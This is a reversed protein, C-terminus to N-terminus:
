EDTEEEDSAKNAAQIFERVKITDKIGATEVGSSVDVGYPHCIRIAKRVNEPSLGGALFYPRKIDKLLTWDFVEGMGGMAAESYADFLLYDAKSELAQGVQAYEKVRVAKVIPCLINRKLEKIYNENEHGHLQVVDIIKHEALNVIQDAPADTFVGVSRIQPDLLAKLDAALEKTVQRKSRAFVFGIYEPQWKNVAYIDEARTLGCIKVKTM